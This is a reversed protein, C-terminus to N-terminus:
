PLIYPHHRSENRTKIRKQIKENSDNLHLKELKNSQSFCVFIKGIFGGFFVRFWSM